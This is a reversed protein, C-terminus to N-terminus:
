GQAVSEQVKARLEAVLERQKAAQAEEHLQNLEKSQEHLRAQLDLYHWGTLGAAGFLSAALLVMFAAAAPRRRAWKVTREVLGTPRATIPEGTLFRRLDDALAEASLYRKRQDKQLCKLCITELDRPVKPQLRTPPVPE